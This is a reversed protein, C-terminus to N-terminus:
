AMRTPRRSRGSGAPRAIRPPIRPRLLPSRHWPSGHGMAHLVIPHSGLRLSPLPAHPRQQQHGTRYEREDQQVLSKHGPRMRVRQVHVRQAHEVLQLLPLRPPEGERFQPAQARRVTAEDVLQRQHEVDPEERQVHHEGVAKGAHHYSRLRKDQRVHEIPLFDEQNLTRSTRM